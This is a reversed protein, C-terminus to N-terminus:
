NKTLFDRNKDVLVIVLIGLAVVKGNPGGLFIETKSSHTMKPALGQKQGNQAMGVECYYTDM